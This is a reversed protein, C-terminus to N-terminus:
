QSIERKELFEGHWTHYWVQGSQANVSLMGVQRIGRLVDFHYYGYFADGDGVRAGPLYGALFQTASQRAQTESIGAPPPTSPAGRLMGGGGMMGMGNMMGMGGMMEQMMAHGYKANWMMNPGMEPTVRGTYRDVLMQLAGRGTSREKFQGYFNQTYAEVEDLVLDDLHHAAPWQRLTQVAQDMSLPRAAPSFPGGMMGVGQMMGMGNMSGPSMGGQGFADEPGRASALSFAGLAVLLVVVGVALRM